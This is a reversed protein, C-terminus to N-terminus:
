VDSREWARPEGLEVWWRELAVAAVEWLPFMRGDTLMVVLWPGNGKPALYDPMARGLDLLPRLAVADLAKVSKHRPENGRLTQWRECPPKDPRWDLHRAM